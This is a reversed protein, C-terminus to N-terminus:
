PRGPPSTVPGRRQAPAASQSSPAAAAAAVSIVFGEIVLRPSDPRSKLTHDAEALRKRAAQLRPRTFRRVQAVFEPRVFNYGAAKCVARDDGGADLALRAQSLRRLHKALYGVIMFPAGKDAVIMSDVIALADAPRGSGLADSLEFVAATRNDATLTEVDAASISPREGVYVALKALEADLLGPEEGVADLLTEAANPELRKGHTRTAQETLWPLLERRGKPRECKRLGGLADIKKALNTNTLFTKAVLVLVGRDSPDDLYGELQERCRTIFGEAKNVFVVRRDALFPLTRVDDLVRAATLSPDDGEYEALCMAPDADGVLFARAKAATERRRPEDDGYIVFVPAGAAKKSM